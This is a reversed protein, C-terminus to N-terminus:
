DLLAEKKAFFHFSAMQWLILLLILASKSLPFDKSEFLVEGSESQVKQVEDTLKFNLGISVVGRKGEPMEAIPKKTIDFKFISIFLFLILVSLTSLYTARAARGTIYQEREDREKLRALRKLTKERAQPLAVLCILFVILLAFWAMLNWAMVEWLGRVLWSPNQNVIEEPQLTGWVMIAVVFPLALILYNQLYRIAKTM